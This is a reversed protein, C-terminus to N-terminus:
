LIVKGLWAVEAVSLGLASLKAGISAKMTADTIAQLGEATPQPVHATIIAQAKDQTLDSMIVLQGDLSFLSECGLEKQLQDANIETPMAFTLRDM